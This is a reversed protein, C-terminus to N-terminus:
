DIISFIQIAYDTCWWCWRCWHFDCWAIMMPVDAEYDIIQCWRMLQWMSAGWRSAAGAHLKVRSFRSFYDICRLMSFTAFYKMAIILWHFIEDAYRCWPAYDDCWHYHGWWHKMSATSINRSAEDDFIIMVDDILFLHLVDWWWREAIIDCRWPTAYYKTIADDKMMMLSPPRVCWSCGSFFFCWCFIFYDAADIADDAAFINRLSCRSCWRRLWWRGASAFHFHWMSFSTFSFRLFHFYDHFSFLMVMEFFIVVADLLSIITFHKRLTVAPVDDFYWYTNWWHPVDDDKFTMMSFAFDFCRPVDADKVDAEPM